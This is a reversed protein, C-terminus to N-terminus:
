GGAILAALADLDAAAGPLGSGPAPPVHRDLMLAFAIRRGRADEVVGALAHSYRLTGTKARLRGAAPTGQMRNRLTGDVGAVPLADLLAAGWPQRQSHALLATTARPTVLTKRSLGAGEELLATDPDIGAGALFARLGCVGWGETSAPPRGGDVCDGRAQAALGAQLLLHQATLNDSDKLAPRVLEALPPSVVRGLTTGAPLPPAPWAHVRVGGDIRIGREALTGHLERAAMRAPDPAALRFERAAGTARGHVVLEDSGPARYLGLDDAGGTGPALHSRTSLGAAAPAEVRGDPHVRVLVANGGSGLAPATAGFATQLDGAEWGSGFPPGAYRTTEAVLDGRVRRVGAQALADALRSRWQAAAEGERMRGLSPDGGGRLVLDGHLVGDADIRGTAELTTEIRHEPGLLALALAASYLKANSAPIARADPAYAALTRGSDLDLVHIGWHSAAFRPQAVHRAIAAVLRADDGHVAAPAVTAPSAAPAAPPPQPAPAPRPPASACGALLLALLLLPRPRPANM